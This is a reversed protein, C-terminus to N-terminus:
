CQGGCRSDNPRVALGPMQERSAVITTQCRVCAAPGGGPEEKEARPRQIDSRDPARLERPRSRRCARPPRGCLPPRRRASAGGNGGPARWGTREAGCRRSPRSRPAPTTSRSRTCPPPVRRMSVSRTWRRWRSADSEFPRGPRRASGRAARARLARVRRGDCEAGARVRGRCRDRWLPPRPRRVAVSIWRAEMPVRTTYVIGNPVVQEIARAELTVDFGTSIDQVQAGDSDFVLGVLDVTATKVGGGGTSFTLAHADLYLVARVFTGRGQSYVPLNTIQVGISAASFPSM